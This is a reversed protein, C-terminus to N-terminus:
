ASILRLAHSTTPSREQQRLATAESILRARKDSLEKVQAELEEKREVEAQLKVLENEVQNLQRQAMAAANARRTMEAELAKVKKQLQEQDAQLKDM